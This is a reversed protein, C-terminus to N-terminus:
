RQRTPPPASIAKAMGNTARGETIKVKSAVIRESKNRGPSEYIEGLSVKDIPKLTETEMVEAIWVVPSQSKGRCTQRRSFMGAKAPCVVARATKGCAAKMFPRALDSSFPDTLCPQDAKDVLSHVKQRQGEFMLHDSLRRSAHREPKECLSSEM